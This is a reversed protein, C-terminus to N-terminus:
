VLPNSGLQLLHWNTLALRDSIQQNWEGLNKDFNPNQLGGRWLILADEGTDQYYRRRRGAEQFGFKQYLSLAVQNSVRVELTAREMGRIRALKLLAYFLLQGLGQGQYAPAVALLTIHAEELISWFCGLGILRQHFKPNQSEMNKEEEAPHRLESDLFQAEQCQLGTALGFDADAEPLCLTLFHSSSSDLERQYGELTWHGGFCLKDLEVVDPLQEATLSKLELFTM